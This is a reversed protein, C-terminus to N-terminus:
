QRIGEIFLNIQVEAPVGPVFYDMGFDTRDIVTSANAGHRYGGWPDKGEGVKIVDFTVTRTKGLMTMEGTLQGQENSGEYGTSKFTITPFEKANFFDPSRLHDDRKGHNTDISATQIVFEVRNTAPNDNMEYSGSFDNFRGVTHSIGLHGAIFQVTTHTQDIQYDDAVVFSSLSLTTVAIASKILNM